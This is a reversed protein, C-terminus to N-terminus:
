LRTYNEIQRTITEIKQELQETTKLSDGQGSSTVEKSTINASNSKLGCSCSSAVDVLSSFIM